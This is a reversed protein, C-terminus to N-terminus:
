GIHERDKKGVGEACHKGSKLCRFVLDGNPSTGEWPCMEQAFLVEFLALAELEEKLKLKLKAPEGFHSIM